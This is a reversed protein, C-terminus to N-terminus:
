SSQRLWEVRLMAMDLIALEGLGFRESYQEHHCLVEGMKSTVMRM